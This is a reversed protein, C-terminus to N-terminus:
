RSLYGFASNIRNPNSNQVNPLRPAFNNFSSLTARNNTENMFERVLVNSPWRIHQLVRNFDFENLGVKFSLYSPSNTRPRMQHCFITQAGSTRLIFDSLEQTTTSLALRSVFLCKVANDIVNSRGNANSLLFAGANQNSPWNSTPLTRTPINPPNINARSSLPISHPYFFPFASEYPPYPMIPFHTSPFHVLRYETLLGVSALLFFFSVFLLTRYM